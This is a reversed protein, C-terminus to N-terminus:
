AACIALEEMVKMLFTVMVIVFRKIKVSDNANSASINTPMVPSVWNDRACCRRSITWVRKIGLM